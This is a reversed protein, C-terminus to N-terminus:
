HANMRLTFVLLLIGYASFMMEAEVAARLSLPTLSHVLTHNILLFVFECEM